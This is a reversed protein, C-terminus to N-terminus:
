LFLQAVQKASLERAGLIYVTLVTYKTLCDVCTFIANCDHVLYCGLSLIWQGLDLGERLLSYHNWFDQPHKHEIKPM